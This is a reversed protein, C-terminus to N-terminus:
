NIKNKEINNKYKSIDNINGGKKIIEIMKNMKTVIDDSSSQSIFGQDDIRYKQYTEDLDNISSAISKKNKSNDKSNESENM